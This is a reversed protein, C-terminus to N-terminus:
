EYTKTDLIMAGKGTAPRKSQLAEDHLTQEIMKQVMPHLGQVYPTAKIMNWDLPTAKNDSVIFSGDKNEPPTGNANIFLDGVGVITNNNKYYLIRFHQREDEAM